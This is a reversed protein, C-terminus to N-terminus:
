VLVSATKPSDAGLPYYEGEQLLRLLKVQPGMPLDGIEDLFLTGGRAQEVLGSRATNAGTFAGKTHGFLADSFMTDDLGSVNVPVFSGSRGSLQHLVQAILEKGTGSDGLVLVPKPSSAVAEIYSFISRMHHSVTIIGSFAEPNRIQLGQLRDSLSHIEQQLSRIRLGHQVATILRAEAVPKTIFDFAGHRMCDVAVQISDESTVVVVPIDPFQLNVQALVEQGSIHPMNLDLIILDINHQVLIPLVKRSDDCVVCQAPLKDQIQVSYLESSVPDDEVILVAAPKESTGTNTDGM